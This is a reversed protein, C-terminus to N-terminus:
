EAHAEESMLLPSPHLANRLLIDCAHIVSGLSIAEMCAPPNKPYEWGLNLYGCGNLTSDVAISKDGIPGWRRSSTPGQLGVVSTGLAAAMHMIGTNVSVVLRAGALVAATKPLDVGAMNHINVDDPLCALLEENRHRDVASGTLVIELGRQRLESVLQIWKTIPWEKLVSGKGGPWLHCVAYNQKALPNVELAKIQPLSKSEVGLTRVLARYNELEHTEASHEVAIDYGYHRYQGKTRFGVRFAAKSALALLAETRTWQGFDLMVDLAASRLIKGLALPNGIPLRFVDTLGDLMRAIEYNTDGCFLILRAHPFARRLDAIAASMLVTDGIASSKLLGVNRISAPIKRRPRFAGFLAVAPIGAYRDLFHVASNGRVKIV